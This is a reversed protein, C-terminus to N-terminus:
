GVRTRIRPRPNLLSALAEETVCDVRTLNAHSITWFEQDTIELTKVSLEKVQNEERLMMDQSEDEDENIAPLYECNEWLFTPFEPLDSYSARFTTYWVRITARQTAIHSLRISQQDEMLNRPDGHLSIAPVDIKHFPVKTKTASM